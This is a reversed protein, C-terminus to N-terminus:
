MGQPQLTLCSQGGVLEMPVSVYAWTDEPTLTLVVWCRLVEHQLGEGHSPKTLGPDTGRPRGPVQEKGQGM